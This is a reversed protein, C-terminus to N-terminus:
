FKVPIGYAISLGFVGTRPKLANLYALSLDLFKGNGLTLTYGVNPEFRVSSRLSESLTADVGGNMDVHFGELVAPIYYRVGVTIPLNTGRTEYYLANVQYQPTNWGWGTILNNGYGLTPYGLGYSVGSIKYHELGLRATLTLNPAIPYQLKANLGAGYNIGNGKAGRMADVSAYLITKDSQAYTSPVFVIGFFLIILLKKM